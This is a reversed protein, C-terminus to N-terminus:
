EKGVAWYSCRQRSSWGYLYVLIVVWKGKSLLSDVVSQVYVADDFQTLGAIGSACLMDLAETSYGFANFMPFLFKWCWSGHFAGHVLVITPKTATSM